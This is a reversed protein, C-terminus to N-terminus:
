ETEWGIGIGASTPTLMPAIRLRDRLSTKKPKAKPAAKDDFLDKLEDPIEGGRVRRSPKYYIIGDILGYAYLGIFAAGTVIEVQQIQRVKPGEKLPVKADLGYKTALYLWCGFTASLTVAQTGALLAGKLKHENQFQPTGFPIFNYGFSRSEYTGVTELYERIRRNREEEIRKKRDADLKEKLKIRTDEFMQVVEPAYSSTTITIEIDLSLAARFEEIARERKGLHFLTAGLVIHAEVEDERRTFQVPPPYLLSNIVRFAEEYKGARYDQVADDLQRRPPKLEPAAIATSVLVLVVIVSRM